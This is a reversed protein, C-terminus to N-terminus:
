TIVLYEGNDILKKTHWKVATSYAPDIFSPKLAYGSLCEMALPTCICDVDRADNANMHFIGTSIMADIQEQLFHPTPIQPRM